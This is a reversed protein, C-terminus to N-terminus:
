SKLIQSNNQPIKGLLAFLEGDGRHIRLPAADNGVPLACFAFTRNDFADKLIVHENGDIRNLTISLQRLWRSVLCTFNSEMEPEVDLCCWPRHHPPPCTRFAFSEFTRGCLHSLVQGINEDNSSNSWTRKLLESNSCIVLNKQYGFTIEM